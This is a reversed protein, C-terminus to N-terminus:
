FLHKVKELISHFGWVSDVDNLTVLLMLFLLLFFGTQEMTQRMRASLPRRIVAEIAFFFLHGGDLAPIPLLNMVGLQLSLFSLFYLFDALGSHAAAASAQAIRIPGGLNKYSLRFTLLKGVVSLTLKSLKWNEQIGMQVSDVLSYRKMVMPIRKELDKRVGLLWHKSSADFVPQIKLPSVIGQRKIVLSVLQGGSRSVQESMDTWTQIPKGDVVLVEDNVQLGAKEAAGGAMVEDIVAENGIFYAPEIGLIPSEGAEPAEPKLEVLFAKEGRKVKVALPQEKSPLVAANFFDRWSAIPKQQVEIIEDGKLLGAKEAPSEKRVGMINPKQDLFVPQRHGVMFVIPMLFFALLLNMFPGAFVVKIKHLLPRKSYSKEPPLEEKPETEHPDEGYLKVYGGLPLASVMYETEGRKFGFIKPGFGLSFIEVGIGQKKAMIFHGFEHIFVLLGLAILFYVITM